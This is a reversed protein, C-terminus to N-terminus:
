NWYGNDKFFYNKDNANLAAKIFIVVMRLYGLKKFRRNSTVTYGRAIAFKKTKIQKTLFYDESCIVRENFGKLKWFRKKDLLLFAGTAFPASFKSLRQAINNILYLLNARIDWDKDWIYAAVCELSKNNALNVAKEILKKDALVIDADIFLIYRSKCKRAGANRGVAPMGGRIVQINLKKQFKKIIKLTNDTSNADAIFIQVQKTNYTQQTISKLLNGINKEENKCPIVISLEKVM